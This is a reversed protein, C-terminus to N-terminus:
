RSKSAEKHPQTGTDVIGAMEDCKVTVASKVPQALVWRQVAGALFLICFNENIFQQHLFNMDLLYMVQGIKTKNLM